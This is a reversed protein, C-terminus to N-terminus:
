CLLARFAEGSEIEGLRWQAWALRNLAPMRDPKMGLSEIEKLNDYAASKCIWYPAMCIVPIGAILAHVGASSAWIVMVWADKLDDALPKKPKDNGPHDRVRVECKTLKELARRTNGAWDVPMILGPTGFARNPCILVHKGDTRWPELTVALANFREPGGEPTQGSGNHGHRAMAYFDGGDKPGNIYGNEAVIVTGGAQEFRTAMDHYEGYRNWILLVDGPSGQPAGQRVEYGAAKLGASFSDHRYYMDRRTLNYAIPM